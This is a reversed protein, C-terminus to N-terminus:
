WEAKQKVITHRWILELFQRIFQQYELTSGIDIIDDDPDDFLSASQLLVLSRTQNNHPTVMHHAIDSLFPLSVDLNKKVANKVLQLNKNCDLLNNECPVQKM